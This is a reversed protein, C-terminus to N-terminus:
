SRNTRNGYRHRHSNSHSHSAEPNNTRGSNDNNAFPRKDRLLNSVARDIERREETQIGRINTNIGLIEGVDRRMDTKTRKKIEEWINANPDWNRKFDEYTEYNGHRKEWITWFFKRKSIDHYKFYLSDIKSLGKNVKNDLYKFGVKFKGALGTRKVTIERTAIVGDEVHILTRDRYESLISSNEFDTNVNTIVSTSKNTDVSEITEQSPVIPLTPSFLAPHRESPESIVKSQTLSPPTNPVITDESIFGQSRSYISSAPYPAGSYSTFLPNPVLSPQSPNFNSTEPVNPSSLPISRGNEDKITDIVFRLEDPQNVYSKYLGFDAKLSIPVDNHTNQRKLDSPGEGNDKPVSGNSNGNSDYNLVNNILSNKKLDNLDEVRFRVLESEYLYVPSKIRNKLEKIIERVFSFNFSKRENCLKRLVSLINTFSPIISFDFYAVLEHVLVITCAMYIYYIFSVINLYDFYVNIGYVYGILVRSVFGIFFIIIVKNLNNKNFIRNFLSPSYFIYKLNKM